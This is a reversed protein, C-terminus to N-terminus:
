DDQKGDKNQREPNAAYSQFLFNASIKINKEVISSGFKGFYGEMKEKIEPWPARLQSHEKKRCLLISLPAWGKAVADVACGNCVLIEPVNQQSICRRGTCIAKPQLCTYCIKRREIKIWRDDPTMSLMETCKAIEHKHGALPCPFKMGSQFWQKPPGQSPAQVNHVKADVEEESSSELKDKDKRQVGHSGKAKVKAGPVLEQNRASEMANREIECMERFVDFTKVGSPNNWDLKEKTLMRTFDEFDGDPLLSM